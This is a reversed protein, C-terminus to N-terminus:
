DVGILQQKDTLTIDHMIKLDFQKEFQEIAQVHIFQLRRKTYMINKAIEDWIKDEVYRQYLIERYSGNDITAIQNLGLAKFDKWFRIEEDYYDMYERRQNEIRKVTEEPLSQYWARPIFNRKTRELNAIEEDIRSLQSLYEIAKVM